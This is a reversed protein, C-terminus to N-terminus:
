TTLALKLIDESMFIREAAMVSIFKDDKKGVGMIISKDFNVAFNDIPEIDEPALEVVEYVSDVLAGVLRRAKNAMFSMVIISTREAQGQGPLGLKLRVDVVPVADGRLNLLGSVYAPSGPIATLETCELVSEVNDIPVACTEGALNFTLYENM